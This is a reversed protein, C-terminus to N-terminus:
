LLYSVAPFSPQRHGALPFVAGGQCGVGRHLVEFPHPRPQSRPKFFQADAGQGVQQLVVGAAVEVEGVGVRHRFGGGPHLAHDLSLQQCLLAPAVGGPAAPHVLGGGAVADGGQLQGPEVVGVGDLLQLHPLLIVELPLHGAPQEAAPHGVGLHPGGRLDGVGGEGGDVGLGFPQGAPGDGPAHRLQQGVGFQQAVGQGRGQQFFVAQGAFGLRHPVDVSGGGGLGHLLGAAAEDKLLQQHQLQPHAQELAATGGGGAGGHAPSVGRGEPRGNRKGGGPRLAPRHVLDQAIHGTLGRHVAQQLPVDAAALGQHGGRGQPRGDPRPVLPRQQGGGFQQGTLM